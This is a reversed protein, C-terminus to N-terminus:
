LILKRWLNGPSIKKLYYTTITVLIGEQPWLLNPVRNSFSSVVDGVLFVGSISVQTTERSRTSLCTPPRLSKKGRGRTSVEQGRLHLINTEQIGSLSRETVLVFYWYCSGFYLLYFTLVDGLTLFLWFSWYRIRWLFYFVINNESSDTTLLLTIFNKIKNM